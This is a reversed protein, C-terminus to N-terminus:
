DQSLNAGRPELSVLKNSHFKNSIDRKDENESIGGGGGGGGGRVTIVVNMEIKGEPFYKIRRRVM